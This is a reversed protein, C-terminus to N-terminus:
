NRTRLALAGSDIPPRALHWQTASQYTGAVRFLLEEAWPPGVIQM